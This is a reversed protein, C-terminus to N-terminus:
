DGAPSTKAPAAYGLRGPRTERLRGFSVRPTSNAFGTKQPSTKAPAADGM